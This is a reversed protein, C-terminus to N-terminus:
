DGTRRGVEYAEEVDGEMVELFTRRDVQMTTVPCAAGLLLM